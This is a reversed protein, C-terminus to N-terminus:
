RGGIFRAGSATLLWVLVAINILVTAWFVIRFDQKKTKHRFLQQAILAGPWGGLVSFLHFSKESIRQGGRHAASKDLAYAVASVASLAWYVVAVFNPLRGALFLITVAGLGSIALGLALMGNDPKAESHRALASEGGFRVRKAQPRRKADLSVEYSIVDGNVPRRGRSTFENIHVFAREGGGNPTVFGFGKDDKWDSIRGQYRM